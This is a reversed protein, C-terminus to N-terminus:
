SYASDPSPITFTIPVFVGIHASGNCSSAGCCSSCEDPFLICDNILQQSKNRDKTCITDACLSGIVSAIVGHYCTYENPVHINIDSNVYHADTCFLSMITQDLQNVPVGKNIKKLKPLIDRDHM